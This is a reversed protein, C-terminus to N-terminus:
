LRRSSVIITYGYLLMVDIEIEDNRYLHHFQFTLHYRLTNWVM